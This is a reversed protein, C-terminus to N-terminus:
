FNRLSAELLDDVSVNKHDKCAFSLRTRIETESLSELKGEESLVSITRSTNTRVPSPKEEKRTLILHKSEQYFGSKMLVEEFLDELDKLTLMTGNLHMAVVHDVVKQTLINIAAITDDSFSSVEKFLAEFTAAVKMPNFRVKTSGDKRYLKINAPNSERAAKHQDRYIIYDRAVDHYSNKMLTVEVLDQIGEVSLSVGNKGLELAREIVSSVLRDIVQSLSQTLPNPLPVKKTDRFALEIAKRIREGNFPVISGNRKVVSLKVATSENFGTELLEETKNQM